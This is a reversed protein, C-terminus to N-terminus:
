VDRGDRTCTWTPNGAPRHVCHYGCAAMTPGPSTCTPEGGFVRLPRMLQFTSTTGGAIAVGVSGAVLEFAPTGGLLAETQEMVLLLDQSWSLQSRAQSRGLFWEKEGAARLVKETKAARAQAVLRQAAADAEKLKATAGEQAENIRRDRNEMAQAVDYYSQVVDQPPHLDLLSVGYLVIGLGYRGYSDCKAQLREVMEPLHDDLWTKLM